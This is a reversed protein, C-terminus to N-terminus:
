RSRRASIDWIGAPRKWLEFALGADSESRARRLSLSAERSNKVTSENARELIEEDSISPAMEAIYAVEHGLARLRQVIPWDVGEDAVFALSM